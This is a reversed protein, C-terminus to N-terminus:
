VTTACAVCNRGLRKAQYMAADAAEMVASAAGQEGANFVALGATVTLIGMPSGSHPIARDALAARMREAAILGTATSQEPFICLFEEGGYRYVSDGTRVAAALEGAVVRLAADGAQHGYLDNYSKFYDVDLMVLCYQHGYRNVRAQLHVLDEDLARRNGLQTLPDRRTAAALERNLLELELHQAALQAHLATVRAAAVLQGGLNDASLPKVLYDDPGARMGELIEESRGQSTIMIFYTYGAGEARVRRCLELGTMGPMVWDSLVVTPQWETFLAWAEEGGCAVRCEHGLDQIMARALLRSIPDDDAVLVKM